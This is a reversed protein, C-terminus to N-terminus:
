FPFSCSLVLRSCMCAESDSLPHTNVAQVLAAVAQTAADRAADSLPTAAYLKVALNYLVTAATLRATYVGNLAHCTAALTAGRIAENGTV